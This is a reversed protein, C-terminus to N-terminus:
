AITGDHSGGKGDRVAQLGLRDKLDHTAVIGSAFGVTKAM